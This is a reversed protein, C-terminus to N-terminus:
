YPLIKKIKARLYFIEKRNVLKQSPLMPEVISRISSNTMKKQKEMKCLTFISSSGLKTNYVGARQKTQMLNMSSPVCMGSHSWSSDISRKTGHNSIIKCPGSWNPRNKKTPGSSRKTTKSVVVPNHMAKLNLCFKYQMQLGSGRYNMKYEKQGFRNCQITSHKITPLFGQIKGFSKIANYLMKRNTWWEDPPFLAKCFIDLNVSPDYNPSSPLCTQLLIKEDFHNVLVFEM